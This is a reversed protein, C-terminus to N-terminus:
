SAAHIATVPKEIAWNHLEEALCWESAEAVILEQKGPDTHTHPMMEVQPTIQRPPCKSQGTTGGGGEM